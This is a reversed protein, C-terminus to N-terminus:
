SRGTGIEIRKLRAIKERATELEIRELRRETQKMKGIPNSMKIYQFIYIYINKKKKRWCYTVYRMIKFTACSQGNIVVWISSVFVSSCPSFANTSLDLIELRTFFNNLCFVQLLLFM